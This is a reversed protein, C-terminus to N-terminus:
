EIGRVWNCVACVSFPLPSVYLDRTVGHLWVCASYSFFLVLRCQFQVRNPTYLIKSQACSDCGKSACNWAMKFPHAQKWKWPQAETRRCVVCFVNWRIEYSSERYERREDFHEEKYSLAFAHAQELSFSFLFFCCRSSKKENTQKRTPSPTTRTKNDSSNNCLFVKRNRKTKKKKKKRFSRRHCCRCYFFCARRCRRCRHFCNYFNIHRNPAQASPPSPAAQVHEMPLNHTCNYLFYSRVFAGKKWSFIFDKKEWRSSFIKMIHM